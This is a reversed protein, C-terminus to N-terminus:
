HRIICASVCRIRNSKEARLSGLHQERGGGDKQQMVLHQWASAGELRRKDRTIMPITKSDEKARALHVQCKEVLYRHTGLRAKEQLM